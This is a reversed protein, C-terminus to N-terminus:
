PASCAWTTPAPGTWAASRCSPAASSTAAASWWPSRCARRVVTAIQRAISQVVDPDVGVAGGGFVEGSLKLVVRRVPCGRSATVTSAMSRREDDGVRGAHSQREGGESRRAHQSYGAHGGRVVAVLEGHYSRQSGEPDRRGAQLGQPSAPSAASQDPEGSRVASWRGNRM